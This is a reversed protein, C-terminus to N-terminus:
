KKFNWSDNSYRDRLLETAKNMEWISLGCEQLDVALAQALGRKFVPEIQHLTMPAQKRLRLLDNITVCKENFRKKMTRAAEDNPFSLYRFLKDTDHELLISGHQLLVKYKRIQASGAVKRGDVVLEYWSPSDFCAASSRAAQLSDGEELESQFQMMEADLGLAIYGQMLGESLVRYAENIQRPIGPYDEPVIVSYTLESEHLVARGGTLRRVFGTGECQVAAIDIEHAKQFYGISLTAPQWGYFRITPMALGESIALMIAEDIAMNEAPARQGTHLFRWSPM